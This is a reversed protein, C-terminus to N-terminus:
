LEAILKRISGDSRWRKYYSETCSRYREFKAKASDVDGYVKWFGCFKCGGARHKIFGDVDEPPYGLFLGIEHPFCGPASGRILESLSNQLEEDSSFVCSFISGTKLGALTPSCHKVILEEPM